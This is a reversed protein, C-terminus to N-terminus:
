EGDEIGDGQKKLWRLFLQKKLGSLYDVFLIGNLHDIEHQSCFSLIDEAEFEFFAGNRDQARVKVKAKRQITERFDPISLCGEKSPVKGSSEIIEPNILEMYGTGDTSVDIVAIRQMVGVQTAALGIGEAEYMSQKMQDLFKHLESDFKTVKEAAQKLRPDPYTIIELSSMLPVITDYYEYPLM